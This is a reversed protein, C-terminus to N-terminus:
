RGQKKRVMLFWIALVAPYAVIYIVCHLTGPEVKCFLLYILSIVWLITCLSLLMETVTPRNYPDECWKRKYDERYIFRLISQGLFRFPGPFSNRM